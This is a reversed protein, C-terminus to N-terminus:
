NASRESGYVYVEACNSCRKALREKTSKLARQENTRSKILVEKVGRSVYRQV